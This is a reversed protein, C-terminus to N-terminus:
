FTTQGHRVMAAYLHVAPNTRYSDAVSSLNARGTTKYEIIAIEGSKLRVVADPIGMLWKKTGPVKLVRRQECEVVEAVDDMALTHMECSRRAMGEIYDPQSLEAFLDQSIENAALMEMLMVSIETQVDLLTVGDRKTLIDLCRHVIQGRVLPLASLGDEKIKMRWWYELVWKRNCKNFTRLESPSVVFGRRDRRLVKSTRGYKIRIESPEKADVVDMWDEIHQAM